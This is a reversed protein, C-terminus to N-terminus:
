RGNQLTRMAVRLTMSFSLMSVNDRISLGLVLGDGIRDETLMAIGARLAESPSRPRLPRGMVRVEGTSPRDAGFICRAVETRGSGVLGYLGVIEGEGVTLNVGELVLYDNGDPRPFAKRVDHIQLLQSPDKEFFYNIFLSAFFLIRVDIGFLHHSQGFHM